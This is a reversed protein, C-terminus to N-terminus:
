AAGSRATARPPRAAGTRQPISCRIERIAGPAQSRCNAPSQRETLAGQRRGFAASPEAAVPRSRPGLMSVCLLLMRNRPLAIVAHRSSTPVTNPSAAQPLLLLLLLLLPPPLELPPLLTISM